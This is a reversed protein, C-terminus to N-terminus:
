ADGSGAQREEQREQGRREAKEIDFVGSMWAKKWSHAKEISNGPGSVVSEGPGAWM